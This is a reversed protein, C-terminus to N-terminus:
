IAGAMQLEGTVAATILAARREKALEVFREAKSILEDISLTQERLSQIALGQEGIKPVAVRIEFLDDVNLRPTRVAGSEVNGIGRVRQAMQSVFTRTRMLAALWEADVDNRMDLVLYDPSTIGRVSSVGLAGQFARMRNVVVQGPEVLKYASLDEARPDDDSIEKRPRVGWDISVSLLDLAPWDEGARKDVVTLYRKLREGVDVFGGLVADAIATRRERLTDILAQQKAMLADIRATEHDLYDAIQQQEMRPPLPLAAKTLDGSRIGVRTVGSALVEWQRLTPAASLAWYLFRPVVEGDRPRVIALHYGCILDPAEYEVFAPVGIDDATESDKTILTDGLRLRFRDIQDPRATAKMFDIDATISDKKYVDTYNCLRVPPQGDVAHKDVTSTWAEAIAGLRAQRWSAPLKGLWRSASTPSEKASTTM